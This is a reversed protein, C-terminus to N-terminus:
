KSMATILKERANFRSYNWLTGMFTDTIRWWAWVSLASLLAGVLVVGAVAPWVGTPSLAIIVAAVMLQAALWMTAPSVWLWIAFSSPEPEKNGHDGTHPPELAGANASLVLMLLLGLHIGALVLPIGPGSASIARLRISAAASVTLAPVLVVMHRSVRMRVRLQAMSNLTSESASRNFEDRMWGEPFVDIIRAATGILAARDRSCRTHYAFRLRARGQWREMLTDAARDIVVGLVFGAGIAIAILASFADSTAHLSLEGAAVFPLVFATLMLGGALVLEVILETANM